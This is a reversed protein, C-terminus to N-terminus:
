LYPTFDIKEVIRDAIKRMGYDSPHLSVGKHEFQGIAMTKEDQELDGIKCFTYGNEVAVEEFIKNLVEIRWFNDTVIIQANPNKGSVFKIMEDFFPKCNIEKNTDRNINEGIRIIVLDAAFDRVFKFKENLVRLGEYYENEWCSLQAICYEIPGVKKEIDAATQHVYDTERSSAAMGWDGHWGIQPAPAHLTISNGVFLVKLKAGESKTVSINSAVQNVSSVTNGKANESVFEKNDM